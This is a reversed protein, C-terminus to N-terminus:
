HLKIRLSIDESNFPAWVIERPAKNERQGSLDSVKIRLKKM